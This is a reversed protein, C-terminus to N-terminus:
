NSTKRKDDLWKEMEDIFGWGQQNSKEEEKTLKKVGPLDWESCEIIMAKDNVVLIKNQGPGINSWISRKDCIFTSWGNSEFSGDVQKVHTQVLVKAVLGGGNFNRMITVEVIYCYEKQTSEDFVTKTCSCFFLLIFILVLFKNM